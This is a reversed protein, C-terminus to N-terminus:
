APQSSGLPEFGEFRVHTIGGSPVTRDRGLSGARDGGAIAEPCGPRTRGAAKKTAPRVAGQRSATGAPGPPPCRGPVAPSGGTRGGGTRGGAPEDSGEAAVQLPSPLSGGHWGRGRVARCRAAHRRGGAGVRAARFGTGGSSGAGRRRGPGQGDGAGVAAAAGPDLGVDLGEVGQPDEAGGGDGGQRGLVGLAHPVDVQHRRLHHGGLDVGDQVVDPGIRGLRAHEAGGGDDLRHGLADAEPPIAEPGEGQHDVGHHDGLAPGGEQVFRGPLGHPPQEQGQGRHDRRVAVLRLFQGAHRDAGQVIGAPGGLDQVGQPRRPHHDLSPVHLLGRGLGDVHNVVPVAPVGQAGRPDVGAGGVARPAGERRGDGGVQGPPVRHQFGQLGGLFVDRPGDAMGGGDAPAM